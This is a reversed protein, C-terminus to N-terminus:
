LLHFYGDRRVLDVRLNFLESLTQSTLVDEKAGDRFVRGDKLLLVREIEPVIDPLHHTVLLLGTGSRALKRFLERLEFQAHFDLSNSPEDFLLTEPNHVLARGILVRKAEGSSMENVFRTALHPVELRTLVAAATEEMAPTIAQHPWLGISSFFGSLVVDRGTLERTCAAVLDNSVLGLHARLDAVNWRDRGLLRVASDPRVLPYLERTITKIFTSKGSGNPGVIAVHEKAGIALTVDDLAVRGNRQVTVHEFALLPPPGATPHTPSKPSAGSHDSTLRSTSM